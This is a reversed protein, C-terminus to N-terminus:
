APVGKRDSECGRCNRRLNGPHEFCRAISALDTRAHANGELSQNESSPFGPAPVPVPGTVPVTPHGWGKGDDWSAMGHGPDPPADCLMSVVTDLHDQEIRAEEVAKANKPTLEPVVVKPLKALEQGLASRIRPSEAREAQNLATRLLRVHKYNEGNRIFTRILVEATETDVVLFAAEDLELLSAMVNDVSGNAALKAWRRPRLPILGSPGIDEQSLLLMYLHQAEVTLGLWEDDLWIRLQVQAFNRAM